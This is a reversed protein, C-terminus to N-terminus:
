ILVPCPSSALWPVAITGQPNQSCVRQKGGRAPFGLTLELYFITCNVLSTIGAAERYCQQQWPPLIANHCSSQHRLLLFPSLSHGRRRIGGKGGAVCSCHSDRLVPSRNPATNPPAQPDQRNHYLPPCSIPLEHRFPPSYICPFCCCDPHLNSVRVRVWLERACRASRKLKSQSREAGKMTCLWRLMENIGRTEGRRQPAPTNHTCIDPCCFKIKSM